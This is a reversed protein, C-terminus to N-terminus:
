SEEYMNAIQEYKIGFYDEIIVRLEVTQIEDINIDAIEKLDIHQNLEFSEVYPDDASTLNYTKVKKGNVSLVAVASKLKNDQENTVPFYDTDFYNNYVNINADYEGKNAEHLYADIQVRDELMEKMNVDVLENSRKGTKSTAIVQTEYNAKISLTQEAFFNLGGSSEVPIETWEHKNKDRYLFSITDGDALERLYWEFKVHITENAMNVQNISYNAGQVWKQEETFQALTAEVESSVSYVESSIDQLHMQMNTVTPSNEMLHDIKFLTIVHFIVSM